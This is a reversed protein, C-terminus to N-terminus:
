AVAARHRRGFTVSVFLELVVSVIALIVAGWIATWFFHDITFHSSIWDLIQLLFANIVLAFLGLTIVMLPLTLLKLITGVVADIIGFLLALWLYTGFGGSVSMGDLLWATVAFAVAYVVWRILLAVIV